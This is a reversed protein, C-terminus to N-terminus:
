LSPRAPLASAIESPSIDELIALRGIDCPIVYRLSGGRISGVMDLRELIAPILAKSVGIPLEARRIAGIVREAAHPTTLGRRLGIRAATAMGVAVAEGHRVGRYGFVTEIPHGLTHGFNLMRRLDEEFPDPQLLHTKISSCLRVVAELADLDGHLCNEIRPELFSFAADSEIAFTKIAEAMGCAIERKPLTALVTPDSLIGVPHHFSGVLNKAQHTNVAVKGGISGDVQAVLTTPVNVYAIGRMYTAAAFGVVDSLASGGFPVVLDRRGVRRESLWDIVGQWAELSKVRESVDLTLVDRILAAAGSASVLRDGHRKWAATDAVIWVAGAEIPAPDLEHVWDDLAGRGIVVPYRSVRAVEVMQRSNREGSGSLVGDLDQWDGQRLFFPNSSLPEVAGDDRSRRLHEVSAM